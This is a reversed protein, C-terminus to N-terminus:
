CMGMGRGCVRSGRERGCRSVVVSLCVSEFVRSVVENWERAEQSSLLEEVEEVRGENASQLLRAQDEDQHVAQLAQKYQDYDQIFWGFFMGYNAQFDVTSLLLTFLVLSLFCVKTSSSVTPWKKTTTRLLRTEQQKVKSDVFVVTMSVCCSSSVIDKEFPNLELEIFVEVILINGECVEYHFVNQGM